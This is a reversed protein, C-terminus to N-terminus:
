KKSAKQLKLMQDAYRKGFIEASPSDFHTTDGKHMLGESTAIATNPVQAPLGELVMNINAFSPRYRGLQGAVFPLNPNGILVRVREILEALQSLYKKSMETNSNAEGQHWIVGKIVGSQMAAKIRVVADDYPHTNTAKDYAGPSWAEIPTGGVACPILGIKVQPNARAMAIGFALGPGVGAISPKDFHLPHRAPVWQNDKNLMYVQTNSENKFEATTPGRGAMNSQGMLIYLEFTTDPKNQAFLNLAFGTILLIIGHIKLTTKMTLYKKMM